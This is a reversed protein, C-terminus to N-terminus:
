YVKSITVIAEDKEVSQFSIEYPFNEGNDMRTIERGTKSLFHAYKHFIFKDGTLFLDDFKLNKSSNDPKGFTDVGGKQILALLKFDGWEEKTAGGGYDFCNYSNNAGTLYTDIPKAKVDAIDGEGYYYSNLRADVHYIKIGADGDKSFFKGWHYENNADNTFLEILFYEDFASNNYTSHNAPVVICENTLASSKLRITTSYASGDVVYPKAWGVSFKSFANWDFVNHSQMDLNGVYDAGSYTYDYYDEIGFVHGQEHIITIADDFHGLSTQEYVKAGPKESSIGSQAIVITSKHPWLTMTKSDNEIRTTAETANSIFHLNDIYGDRNLDFETWDIRPNNEVTYKVAEVFLQQLRYIGGSIVNECTFRSATPTYPEAVYGQIEIENLSTTEFYTKLSNWSKPTDERKGFFYKNVKDLNQDDWTILSIDESNTNFNIPVVLLNTIGTKPAVTAFDQYVLASEELKYYGLNKSLTFEMTTKRPELSKLNYSFLYTEGAELPNDIENKSSGKKTFTYEIYPSDPTFYEIKEEGNISYNARFELNPNTEFLTEGPIYGIEFDLDFDDIRINEQSHSKVIYNINDTYEQIGIKYRLSVETTGAYKLTKDTYAKGNEVNTITNIGVVRTINRQQESGNTYVDMLAYDTNNGAEYEDGAYLQINRLDKLYSYEVKGPDNSPTGCATLLMPILFIFVKKKM